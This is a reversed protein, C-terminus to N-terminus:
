LDPAEASGRLGPLRYVTLVHVFLTTSQWALLFEMRHASQPSTLKSKLDRVSYKREGVPKTQADVPATNAEGLAAQLVSSATMKKWTRDFFPWKDQARNTLMRVRKYAKDLFQFGERSRIPRGDENEAIPEFLYNAKIWTALELDDQEESMCLADHIKGLTQLDIFGEVTEPLKM